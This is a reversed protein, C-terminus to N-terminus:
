IFYLVQWPLKRLQKIVGDVVDPDDTLKEMFLHRIYLQLPTRVKAAREQRSAGAYRYDVYDIM